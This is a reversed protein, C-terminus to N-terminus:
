KTTGNELTLFSGPFRRLLIEMDGVTRINAKYTPSLDQLKGIEYQCISIHNTGPMLYYTTFEEESNICMGTEPCSVTCKFSMNIKDPNGYEFEKPTNNVLNLCITQRGGFRHRFSVSYNDNLPSLPITLYPDYLNPPPLFLFYVIQNIPSIALGYRRYRIFDCVNFVTYGCFALTIIFMIKGCLGIGRKHRRFYWALTLFSLLCFVATAVFPTLLLWIPAILPLLFDYSVEM